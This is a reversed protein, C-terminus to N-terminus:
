HFSEFQNNVLATLQRSSEVMVTEEEMAQLLPVAPETELKQAKTVQDLEPLVIAGLVGNHGHDMCQMFFSAFKDNAKLIVTGSMPGLYKSKYDSQDPNASYVHM